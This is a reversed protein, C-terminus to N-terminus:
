NSPIAPYLLRNPSGTGPNVVVGPTANANLADHVADANDAPFRHRWLAAVGAAHPTSMSTGSLTSYADDATHWASYINAGPAFVDVCPGINSFPARNDTIDTAAVTTARPVRAPSFQCASTGSGGSAISYHVNADISANVAEDLPQFAPGGLSLNAVSRAAPTTQQAFTVYDIGALVIAFTTAGSCQFVRVSVIRVGKAV